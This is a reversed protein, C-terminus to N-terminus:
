KLETRETRIIKQICFVFYTKTLLSSILSVNDSSKRASPNYKAEVENNNNKQTNMRCKIEVRSIWLGKMMMQQHSSAEM